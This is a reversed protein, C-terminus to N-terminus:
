PVGRSAEFTLLELARQKTCTRTRRSRNASSAESYPVMFVQSPHDYGKIAHDGLSVLAINGKVEGAVVPDTLIQTNKALGCLRSALNVVSGIATYDVRGEYGVTGVIAPGMAIGVGFGMAHGKAAWGVVLPQLAAQMDIALRLGHLAPNERAVPANVLVMVGDGTFGVLTAEHRTIVAGLARYYDELVPLIVDPEARSSFATFGRLDGFIAVVDRRQGRLLQEGGSREVLEAVQPALFRKLLTIRESKEKSVALEKAMENFRNALQELADGRSFTIRHDFHGAGIKEVGHELQRIPKSMRCALWYALAVAFSAVAVILVLSRWLAARISALAESVPQQAIVTWNLSAIRASAAVVDQGAADKTLVASGHAAAITSALRDFDNSGADGRLVLSIDPHAILRGDDDIVFALGTEGIRIAAIVDWILKLNIEAIAVGTAARNGTVAITMYPESEREYRVPGYWTKGARAGVVAPDASMDVGHGVRNLGLRSVFTRERGTQDLLAISSVAPVQRLLRLADIRHRDDDADTWALQVAWGLQDRIGDIFTQIRSAASRAEVDLVEDIQLRRDQYGFAAESIAGLMLPMVAAAFLTVFYKLFLSRRPRNARFATWTSQFLSARNRFM